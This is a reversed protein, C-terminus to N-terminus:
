NTGSEHSIEFRFNVRPTVIPPLFEAEAALGLIVLRVAMAAMRNQMQFLANMSTSALQSLVLKPPM